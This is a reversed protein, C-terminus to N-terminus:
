QIPVWTRKSAVCVDNKVIYCDVYHEGLYKTHEYLERRGNDAM